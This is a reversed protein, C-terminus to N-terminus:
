VRPEICVCCCISDNRENKETEARPIYSQLGPETVSALSPETSVTREDLYSSTRAYIYNLNSQIVYVGTECLHSEGGPTLESEM